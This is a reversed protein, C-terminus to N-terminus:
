SLLNKLFKGKWVWILAKKRLNTKVNLFISESLIKWSDKEVFIDNFHNLDKAPLNQLAEVWEVAWVEVEWEEESAMVLIPDVQLPAQRQVKPEKVVEWIYKWVKQTLHEVEDQASLFHSQTTFM